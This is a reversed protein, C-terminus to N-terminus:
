KTPKLREKLLLSKPVVKTPEVRLPGGDGRRVKISSEVSSNWMVELLPPPEPRGERLLNQWM